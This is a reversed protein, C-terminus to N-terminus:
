IWSECVCPGVLYRQTCVFEAWGRSSDAGVRAASSCGFGVWSAQRSLPQALEGGAGHCARLGMGPALCDQLSRQAGTLLSQGSPCPPGFQGPDPAEPTHDSARRQGVAGLIEGEVWLGEVFSFPALILPSLDCPLRMWGVWGPDQRGPSTLTNGSTKEHCRHGLWCGTWHHCQHRFVSLWPCPCWHSGRMLGCWSGVRGECVERPASLGLGGPEWGRRGPTVSVDVWLWSM